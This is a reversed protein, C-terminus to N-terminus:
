LHQGRNQYGVKSAQSQKIYKELDKPWGKKSLYEYTIFLKQDNKKFQYHYYRDQWIESILEFKNDKAYNKLKTLMKEKHKEIRDNSSKIEGKEKKNKYENIKKKSLKFIENDSLSQFSYKHDVNIWKSDLLKANRTKAFERMEEILEEETKKHGASLTLFKKLNKPWGNEELKIYRIKFQQKDKEFEYEQDSGIWKKSLLIANNEIALQKLKNLMFKAHNIKSYDIIFNNKNLIPPIKNIKKFEEEITKTITSIVQKECFNKSKQFNPIQLLIIGLKNCFIRKQKDKESVKEYNIHTTKWHSPHGQYEFAINLEECYGDLELYRERGTVSPTLIDKRKNFKCQFLHEMAQQCIPEAVLGRKGIVHVELMGEKIEKYSM